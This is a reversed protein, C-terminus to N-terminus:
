SLPLPRNRLAFLSGTLNVGGVTMIGCFAQAPETQVPNTQGPTPHGTVGYYVATAKVQLRGGASLDNRGTLARAVELCSSDLEATSPLQDVTGTAAFLEVRHPKACDVSSGSVLADSCVTYSDPLSGGVFAKRVTGTFPSSTNGETVCAIWHQGGSQQLRSPGILGVVGTAVPVWSGLAVSHMDGQSKGALIEDASLYRAAAATCTVPDPSRSRGPQTFPFNRADTFVQVVEGYHPIACSGYKLDAVLGGVDPNQLLCSGITPPPQIVTGTPTGTVEVGGLRPVAAALIVTLTLVIAGFARRTVTRPYPRVLTNLEQSAPRRGGRDDVRIRIM